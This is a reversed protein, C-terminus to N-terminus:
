NANPSPAKDSEELEAGSAEPNQNYQGVLSMICKALEDKDVGPLERHSGNRFHISTGLGIGPAANDEYGGFYDISAVNVWLSGKTTPIKLMLTPHKSM